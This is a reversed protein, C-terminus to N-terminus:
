VFASIASMPSIGQLTRALTDARNENAELVDSYIDRMSDVDDLEFSNYDIESLKVNEGYSLRRYLNNYIYETGANMHPLKFVDAEEIADVLQRVSVTIM